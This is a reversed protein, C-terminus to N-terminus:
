NKEEAQIVAYLQGLELTLFMEAMRKYREFLDEINSLSHWVEIIKQRLTGEPM